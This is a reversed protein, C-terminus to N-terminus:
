RRYIWFYAGTEKRNKLAGGYADGKEILEFGEMHARLEADYEAPTRYIASYPCEMEESYVADLTLRQSTACSEKLYLMGHDKLLAKVNALCVSLDADNVYMLVGNVLIKDFRQWAPPEEQLAARAEQFRACVFRAGDQGAHAKEALRLLPRSYDMGLYRAGAALVADCWRGVGCGIDLVTEGAKLDLLPLIRRKEDEDRAIAIQPHKDQYNTYSLFCPLEKKARADFFARIEGDDLATAKGLIRRDRM